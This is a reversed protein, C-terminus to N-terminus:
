AAIARASDGHWGAARDAFWRGLGEFLELQARSGGLASLRPALSAWRAAAEGYAGRAGAHLAQAAGRLVSQRESRSRGPPQASIWAALGKADEAGALALLHHLVVFQDAQRPLAKLATQRVVAWPLAVPQPASIRVRWLLAPADTDAIGPQVAAPLIEASFRRYAAWWDGVGLEFLAMHFQLHVWDSGAGTRNSLWAGLERRGLELEGADFRAHARVHAAGVEGESFVVHGSSDRALDPDRRRAPRFHRRRVPTAKSEHSEYGNSIANM